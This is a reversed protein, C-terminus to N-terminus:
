IWAAFLLFAQSYDLIYFHIKLLVKGESVQKVEQAFM